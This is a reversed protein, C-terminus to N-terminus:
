ENFPNRHGAFNINLLTPDYGWNRIQQLALERYGELADVEVIIKNEEPDSPDLRYGISLFFTRYPLESIIPNNRRLNDGTELAEDGARSEILLFNEDNQAIEIAEVTIPTLGVIIEDNTDTITITEEFTDFGDREVRVSYEGLSLRSSTGRVQDDDVYIKADKPAVLFGVSDRQRMYLTFMLGVALIGLLFLWFRSSLLRKQQEM